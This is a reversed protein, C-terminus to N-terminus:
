TLVQVPDDGVNFGVWVIGIPILYTGPEGRGGGLERKEKKERSPSSDTIKPV